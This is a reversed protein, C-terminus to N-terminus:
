TRRSKALISRYLEHARAFELEANGLRRARDAAHRATAQARTSNRIVEVLKAALAEPDRPPIIAGFREDVIWERNAPIDSVIVPVETFLTELLTVSTGDSSPVSVVVTSSRLLAPLEERSLDAYPFVRDAVEAVLPRLAAWRERDAESVRVLLQSPEEVSAKAFGRLVTEPEYVSKLGRPSLVIPRDRTVGLRTLLAADAAGPAFRDADAGLVIRFLRSRPFGLRVLADAVVDADYTIATAARCLIRSLNRTPGRALLADSGWATVVLPRVGSLAAVWAPGSLWHAHVVDPRFANLLRRLRLSEGLLAPVSRRYPKRSLEPIVDAAEPATGGYSIFYVEWGVSRFYELWRDSHISPPALLALRPSRGMHDRRELTTPSDLWTALTGTAV